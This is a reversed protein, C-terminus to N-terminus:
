VMIRAAKVELAPVSMAEPIVIISSSAYCDIIYAGMFMIAWVGVAYLAITALIRKVNFKYLTFYVPATALITAAICWWIVSGRPADSSIVLYAWILIAFVVSALTNATIVKARSIDPANIRVIISLTYYILSSVLGLSILSLTLLFEKNTLM